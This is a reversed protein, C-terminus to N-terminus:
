PIRCACFRTRDSSTPAVFAGEGPHHGTQGSVVAFLLGHHNIRGVEFGVPCRGAHVHTRLTLLCDPPSNVRRVPPTAAQDLAGFAAHVGFQVGDTVAM